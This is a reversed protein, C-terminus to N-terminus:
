VCRRLRRLAEDVRDLSIAGYGLLLGQREPAGRYHYSLSLVSVDEARAREAVDTDSRDTGEPFLATLHLGCRSPLPSLIGEFDRGLLELIREHREGYTRRMRRVHQALLGDEIFQAAAAQLPVATHWDALGKAKELADHLPPPAV